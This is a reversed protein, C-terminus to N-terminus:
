LIMSVQLNLGRQFRPRIKPRPIFTLVLVIEPIAFTTAGGQHHALTRPQTQCGERATNLTTSNVDWM